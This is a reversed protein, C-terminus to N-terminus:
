LLVLFRMLFSCVVHFLTVIRFLICPDPVIFGCHSGFFLFLMELDYNMTVNVLSFLSLFIMFKRKVWSKHGNLMELVSIILCSIM